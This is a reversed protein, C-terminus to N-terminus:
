NWMKEVMERVKFQERDILMEQGKSDVFKITASPRQITRLGTDRAFPM